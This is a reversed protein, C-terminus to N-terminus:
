REGGSRALQMLRDERDRSFKFGRRELDGELYEFDLPLQYPLEPAVALLDGYSSFQLGRDDMYEAIKAGLLRFDGSYGFGSSAPLGAGRREAVQWGAGYGWMYSAVIGQLSGGVQGPENSVKIVHFQNRTVTDIPSWMKAGTSAACLITPGNSTASTANSLQPIHKHGHIVLWRGLEPHRSLLDILEGGRRMPGYPDRLYANLQHEQPHHHLVAINLKPEATRLYAELSDEVSVPFSGRNLEELYVAYADEDTTGGTPFDPYGFTSDFLVFRHDSKEVSTWGQGWFEDDLSALGAPFTPLLNKLMERSDLSPRHTIVDHNGPVALLPAGLQASLAHLKRWGYQLGVADARNSIDGPVVLYDVELQQEDFFSVLDNLPQLRPRARPPETIVHTDDGVREGAHIDSLVALTLTTM